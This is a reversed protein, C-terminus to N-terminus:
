QREDDRNRLVRRAEESIAVYFPTCLALFGVVIAGTRLSDMSLGEQQIVGAVAIAGVITAGAICAALRRRFARHERAADLM